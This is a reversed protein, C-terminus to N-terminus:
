RLLMVMYPADMRDGFVPNGEEIFCWHVLQNRNCFDHFFTESNFAFSTGADWLGQFFVMTGFLQFNKRKAMFVQEPGFSWVINDQIPHGIGHEYCGDNPLDRLHQKMYENGMSRMEEESGYEPIGSFVLPKTLLLDFRWKVCFEFKMQNKREYDLLLCWAKWLQYYQIITGSGRLYDKSWCIGDTNMARHFVADSYGPRELCMDLVHSYESTKFSPLLLSGGIEFGDFYRLVREPNDTECAFFLVPRNPELLNKKLHEITRALSREGGVFLIATKMKHIRQM